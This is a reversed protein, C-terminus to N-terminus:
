WRLALLTTGALQLRTEEVGDIVLYGGGDFVVGIPGIIALTTRIGAGAVPARADLDAGLGAHLDIVLRPRAAAAEFVFSGLVIGRHAGDIARWAALAGYRSGLKVDFTADVRLRDGRGGTALLAGGVGVSGHERRRETPEAAPEARAPGSIPGSLALVALVALAVSRRM